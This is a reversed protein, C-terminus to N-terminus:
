IWGEGGCLEPVTPLGLSREEVQLTVLNVSPQVIRTGCLHLRNSNKSSCNREVVFCSDCSGQPEVCEAQSVHQVVAVSEARGPPCTSKDIVSTACLMAHKPTTVRKAMLVPQSYV